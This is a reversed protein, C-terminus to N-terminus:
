RTLAERDCRGQKRAHKAPVLYGIRWAAAERAERGRSSASAHRFSPQEGACTESASRLFAEKRRCWHSAAAAKGPVRIFSLIPSGFTELFTGWWLSKAQVLSMRGGCQGEIEYICVLYRTSLSLISCKISACLSFCLGFIRVL